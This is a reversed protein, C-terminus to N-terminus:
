KEKGASLMNLFIKYAGPIGAPIQRFWAYGTYIFIGKGYRGYLTGGTLDKGGRDHAAFVTEYKPDWEHAFYLGREQVWGSLDERAIKNPFRVLPHDKNVFTIEADEETVRDSSIKFPYPGLNDTALGRPTHYQVIYTGGNEVYKMLKDQAFKLRPRTNYARIGAVVADYVAFQGIELDDDTLLTIKIGMQKLYEPILDGSGMIYGINQARNQIDLRVLKARTEPFQVQTPIHDYQIIQLSKSFTKGDVVAEVSFYAETNSDPPELAFIIKTEDYKNALNFIAKAPTAKWGDPLRLMLEGQVGSKGSKLTVTIPRPDNKPFLFVKEDLNMTVPPVVAFPRYMEGKVPDTWRHQVPIRYLITLGDFNLVFEVNLEKHNEALGIMTQDNITFMGKSPEKSLWYPQSIPADPPITITVAAGSSKGKKLSVNSLTDFGGFPYRIKELTVPFNSRNIVASTIKVFSGPAAAYDYAIAEMWLGACSHIVRSLEARKHQVWVNEELLNIERYARLLIPITATPNEPDFNKYAEQLLAGAKEGGKVRSWTLNIGDWLETKASDGGIWQFYNINEARQASVGFGQSKHMSRSEAALETYSKGLLPDYEGVDIRILNSLDAKKEHLAPLWANWYIRKPQWAEVYKLQEPFKTPDGACAFAEQAIVASATHQGHGGEGTSPFRTLIIDPRFQRIVWVADSLVKEKDWFSFTEEPSKTYGFDIARTFYQEAGDMRRAALLEQTRIIGLQEGQESGILNQGGDGRTIALYGTRLHRNNACYALVATNEDDPHAAIYLVSGLVTLKKLAAQLQAADPNPMIQARAPAILLGCATLSGVLFSKIWHM